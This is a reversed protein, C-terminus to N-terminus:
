VPFDGSDFSGTGDVLVDHSAVDVDGDFDTVKDTFSFLQDPTENLEAVGIFGIDYKGSVRDVLATDHLDGNTSWEVVMGAELGEIRVADGDWTVTVDGDTETDDIDTRDMEVIPVLASFDAVDPLFVPAYVRIEDIMVAVGDDPTPSGPDNTGDQDEDTDLAHVLDRGGLSFPGGPGFATDNMDYAYVKVAADSNGVTQAIQFFAGSVENFDTFQINDADDAETQTLDKAPTALFDPNPELVFSMWLGENAQDFSNNTNAVVTESFGSGKSSNVTQSQNTFEGDDDTTAPNRDDEIDPDKGLLLIARETGGVMGFLNQGSPLDDFNYLEFVPPPNTHVTFVANGGTLEYTYFQTDYLEDYVGVTGGGDNTDNFYRVLTASNELTVTLEVGNIEVTDPLDPGIPNDTTGIIQDGTYAIIEFTPGTDAGNAEELALHAPDFLPTSDTDGDAFDVALNDITGLEPVDDTVIFVAVNLDVPDDDADLVIMLSSLNIVLDNTGLGPAHDLADLVTFTSIGVPTLQWTFVTRGGAMAKLTDDTTTTTVFSLTIADGSSEFASIGANDAVIAAILATLDAGTDLAFSPPEDAGAEVADAKFDSVVSASAPPPANEDLGDGLADEFVPEPAPTPKAAPEDDIIIAKDGIDVEAVDQDTDGDTATLRAILSNDNMALYEDDDTLDSPAAHKIPVFQALALKEDGDLYLIVALPDTVDYGDGGTDVRGIVLGSPVDLALLIPDGNLDTLGSDNSAGVDIEFAVGGDGDTGFDTSDANVVPDASLAWGMLTAGGGYATVYTAIITPLAAAQDDADPQIPNDNPSGQVGDTEDHAVTGIDESIVAKPGDDDFSFMSEGDTVIAVSATDTDVDGDKDTASSTLVLDLRDESALVTRLIAETDYYNSDNGHDIPLYHDVNIQALSLDTHDTIYIRFALYDDGGGISGDGLIFGLIEQDNAGEKLRITLDALGVLDPHALETVSLTTTVTGLAGDILAFSLSDTRGDGVETGFEEDRGYDPTPTAFLAGIDGPSTALSGIITATGVTLAPAPQVAPQPDDEDGNPTTATADLGVSETEPDDEVGDGDLDPNYTDQDQGPIGNGDPDITEDLNLRIADFEGDDVGPEVSIIPGDDDFAVPSGSETIYDATADAKAEDGEVDTRTVELNIGIKDGSSVLTSLITEEDHVSPDETGGHDLALLQRVVIQANTDSTPNIINAFFAIAGTPDPDGSGDAERGVLEDRSDSNLDQLFLYVTRGNVTTTLNSAVASDPDGGETLNFTFDYSLSGPGDQGSDGGPTNFLDALSDGDDSNTVLQGIIDGAVISGFGTISQEDDDSNNDPVEVPNSDNNFRDPTGETEDFEVGLIDDKDAGDDATISVTPGDDDFSFDDTIDLVDSDSDSDDDNDVLTNSRKVGLIADDDVLSLVLNEDHTTDTDHLIPLKLTTILDATAPDTGSLEIIFAVDNGGDSTPDTSGDIMGYVKGGSLVLVITPDSDDGTSVSLNTTLTTVESGGPLPGDLLVLSLTDSSAGADKLDTGPTETVTFSSAFANAVTVKGLVGTDDDPNGDPTEGEAAREAGVTEDLEVDLSSAGAVVTVTPGDDDVFMDAGVNASVLDGELLSVKGIDVKGSTTEVLEHNIVGEWTAAVTDAAELGIIEATFEGNMTIDV